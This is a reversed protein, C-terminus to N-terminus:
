FGRREYLDRRYGVVWLPVQARSAWRVNSWRKNKKWIEEPLLLMAGFAEAAAEYPDRYYGLPKLLTLKSIQSHLVLKGEDDEDMHMLGHGLSKAIVWRKEEDTAKWSIEIVRSSDNLSGLFSRGNYFTSQTVFWGSLKAIEVVPIPIETGLFTEELVSKAINMGEIESEKWEEKREFNKRKLAYIMKRLM